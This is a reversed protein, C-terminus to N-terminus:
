VKPIWTMEPPPPDYDGDRLYEPPPPPFVFTTEVAEDTETPILPYRCIGRPGGESPQDAECIPRNPHKARSNVYSPVANPMGNYNSDSMPPASPNYAQQVIFPGGASSKPQWASRGNSAHSEIDRPLSYNNRDMRHSRHQVDSLKVTAYPAVDEDSGSRRGAPRGRRHSRMASIEADSSSRYKRNGTSKKNPSKKGGLPGEMAAVRESGGHQKRRVWFCTVVLCLLIVLGCLVTPLAVHLDLDVLPVFSEEAVDEKSMTGENLALTSFEYEVVSSGASTHARMRLNYWSGPDLNELVLEKKDPRLDDSVLSWSRLTKPKYEVAFYAIKCGNTVWSDLRLVARDTSEKVLQALTPVTPVGGDTTVTVTDSPQGTGAENVAMLYIRYATGCSLGSLIHSTLYPQLSVHHWAGSEEAKYHLEYGQIPAVRAVLSPKWFLGVSTASCSSILLSPPPPPVLVVLSHVLRDQGVDNVVSCTYNGSHSSRADSIYLSGDDADDKFDMVHRGNFLWSRKPPPFGFATCPLSVSLGAHVYITEGFNACRSAVKSGTAPSGFAPKSPKGDGATSGSAVVTFEYRRNKELGRVKYFTLNGHVSFKSLSSNEQGKLTAKVLVTYRSVIGNADKPPRWAVVVSDTSAPFVKIEQPAEPVDELTLCHVTKSALGDGVLTYGLVQVSYNTFKSLGILNETSSSTNWISM